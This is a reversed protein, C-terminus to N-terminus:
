NKRSRKVPKAKTPAFTKVTTSTAKAATTKEAETTLKQIEFDQSKIFKGDVFIDARYNGAVWFGEPKGTFNVRSQNGNTKYSVSVVKSEAKVGKVSVAVLNMKVTASKVSDLEVVCYLPIDTTLFKTASDGAHGEGDDKALYVEAVGVAETQPLVQTTQAFVNLSFMLFAALFLIKKM